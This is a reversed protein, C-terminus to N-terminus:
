RNRNLLEHNKTGYGLDSGFEIDLCKRGTNEDLVKRAKGSAKSLSQLSIKQLHRLSGQCCIGLKEADYKFSWKKEM